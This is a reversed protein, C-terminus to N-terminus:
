KTEEWDVLIFYDNKPDFLDLEGGYIEDPAIRVQEIRAAIFIFETDRLGVELDGHEAIITQLKLILESAKM